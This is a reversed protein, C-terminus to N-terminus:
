KAVWPSYNTEHRYQSMQFNYAQEGDRYGLLYADRLEQAQPLNNATIPVLNIGDLWGMKMYKYLQLSEQSKIIM